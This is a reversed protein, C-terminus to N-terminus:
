KSNKSARAKAREIIERIGPPNTVNTLFELLETFQNKKNQIWFVDIENEISDINQSQLMNGFASLREVIESSVKVDFDNMASEVAWELSYLMSQQHRNIVTFACAWRLTTLQLILCPFIVDVGYYTVQKDDTDDLKIIERQREYAKRIDYALGLTFESLDVNHQCNLVSSENVIYHIMENAARLDM